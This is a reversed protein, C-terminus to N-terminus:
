DSLKFNITQLYPDKDALSDRDSDQVSIVEITKATIFGSVGWGSTFETKIMEDTRLFSLHYIDNNYVNVEAPSVGNWRMVIKTAKSQKPSEEPRKTEVLDSYEITATLQKTELHVNIGVIYADHL